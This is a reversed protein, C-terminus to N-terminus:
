QCIFTVHFDMAISENPYPKAVITYNATGWDPVVKFEEFKAMESRPNWESVWANVIHGPEKGIFDKFNQESNTGFTLRYEIANATTPRDTTSIRLAGERVHIPPFPASKLENLRNELITLRYTSETGSPRPRAYCLSHSAEFCM